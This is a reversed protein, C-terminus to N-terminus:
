NVLEWIEWDTRNRTSYVPKYESGHENCIFGGMALRNFRVYVSPSWLPSRAILSSDLLLCEEVQQWRLGERVRKYLRGGFIAVMEDRDGAKLVERSNAIKPMTGTATVKLPEGQGAEGTITMGDILRPEEVMKGADPSHDALPKLPDMQNMLAITNRLSQNEDRLEILTETLTKGDARRIIFEFEEGTDSKLAVCLTNPGGFDKFYAWLAQDLRMAGPHDIIKQGGIEGGKLCKLAPKRKFFKM